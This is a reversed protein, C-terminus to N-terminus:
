ATRGRSSTRRLKPDSRSLSVHRLSVVPVVQLVADFDRNCYSKGLGDCRSGMTRELPVEQSAPQELTTEVGSRLSRFVLLLTRASVIVVFQRGNPQGSSVNAKVEMVM